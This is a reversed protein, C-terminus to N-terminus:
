DLIEKGETTSKQSFSGGFSTDLQSTSKEDLGMYFHQPTVHDPISLVPGSNVLYSFREWAWGAEKEGQQFNLIDRRLHQRNISTDFNM